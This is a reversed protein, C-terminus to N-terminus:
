PLEIDGVARVPGGGREQVFVIARTAGVSRLQDLPARGHFAGSGSGVLSMARAVAVHVLTRGANEGGTVTSTAHGEVAALMVDAGVGVDWRADIDVFSPRRSSSTIRLTVSGAPSRAAAAIANRTAERNSGVGQFRGGAVLQPTYPGSLRLRRVYDRQRESFVRSSYPDKWGLDDWYDVHESLAIIRTGPVPQEELLRALAIDAPPCSSCGESTFLEVLVPMSASEGHSVRSQASGFALAFAMTTILM